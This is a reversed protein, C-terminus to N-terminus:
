VKQSVAGVSDLALCTGTVVEAVTHGQASFVYPRNCVAFGDFWRKVLGCSM